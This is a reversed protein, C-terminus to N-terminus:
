RSLINFGIIYCVVLSAWFIALATTPTYMKHFKTKFKNM